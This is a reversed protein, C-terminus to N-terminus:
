ERNYILDGPPVSLFRALQRHCIVLSSVLIAIICVFLWPDTLVSVHELIGPLRAGAKAIAWLVAQFLLLVLLSTGSVRLLLLLIIRLYGAEIFGPSLGFAMFTGLNMRMRDLHNRLLNYLYLMIAMLAFLVLASLLFNGLRAVMAFNKQAEVRHLDLQVPKRPDRPDNSGTREQIDRQFEGISDLAHFTITLQDFQYLAPQNAGYVTSSDPGHWRIDDFWVAPRLSLWKSHFGDALKTHWHQLDDTSWGMGNTRKVRLAKSHTAIDDVDEVEVFVEEGFFVSFRKALGEEQEAGADVLIRLADYDRRYPFTRRGETDKLDMVLAHEALCRAREPLTHVVALVRLPATFGGRVMLIRKTRLAELDCGLAELFERSIVIGDSYADPAVMRVGGPVLDDHLLNDPQLIKDLLDRDHRLSFSVVLANEDGGSKLTHFPWLDIYSGSAKDAQFRGSAACGQLYHRISDYNGGYSANSVNISVLSTFPDNMSRRLHSMGSRALMVALLTALVMAMLLGAVRGNRGRVAAYEREVFLREHPEDFRRTLDRFLKRASM